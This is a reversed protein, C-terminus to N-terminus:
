PFPLSTELLLRGRGAARGRRTGEGGLGGGGGGAWWAMSAVSKGQTQLSGGSVWGGM